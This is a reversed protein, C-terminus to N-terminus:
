IIVETWGSPIGSNSNKAITFEEKHYITGTAPKPASSNWAFWEQLSNSQRSTSELRVENVGSYIFMWYLCQSSLAQIKIIPAKKLKPCYGFMSICARNGVTGTIEIYEPGVELNVCANFVEDWGNTGITEAKMPYPAKKLPYCCLYFCEMGYNGVTRLNNFSTAQVLSPMKHADIVENMAFSYSCGYNGIIEVSDMNAANKLYQCQAFAEKFGYQKIETCVLGPTSIISSKYCIQYCAYDKIISSNIKPAKTIGSQMFMRAYCYTGTETAPLEPASKLNTFGKFLSHFAYDPVSETGLISMINGACYIKDTSNFHYYNTEQAMNGTWSGNFTENNGKFYITSNAPLDISVDSSTDLSTWEPNEIDFCYSLDITAPSGTRTLTLTNAVSTTFHLYSMELEDKAKKDEYYPNEEYRDPVINLLYQKLKKSKCM